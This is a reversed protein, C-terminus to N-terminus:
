SEISPDQNDCSIVKKNFGFVDVEPKHFFMSEDIFHTHDVFPDLDSSHVEQFGWIEVIKGRSKIYKCLPAYDGNGSFFVWKDFSDLKEICDVTIAVHNSPSAYRYARPSNDNRVVVQYGWRKLKLEFKSSDFDARRIMYVKAEVLTEERDHLHEWVKEFDLRQGRAGYFISQLDIQVFINV